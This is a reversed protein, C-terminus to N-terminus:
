VARAGVRGMRNVRQLWKKDQVEKIHKCYKQKFKHRFQFAKCDCAWEMRSRDFRIDYDKGDVKHHEWGYDDILVGDFEKIIKDIIDSM